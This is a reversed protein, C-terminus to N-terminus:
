LCPHAITNTHYFVFYYSRSYLHIRVDSITRKFGNKVDWAQIMCQAGYGVYVGTSRSLICSQGDRSEAILGFIAKTGADVIRDEYLMSM